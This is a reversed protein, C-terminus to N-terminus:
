ATAPAAVKAQNIMPNVWQTAIVVGAVVIALTISYGMLEKGDPFKM